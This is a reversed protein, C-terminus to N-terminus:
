RALTVLDYLARFHISPDDCIDSLVGHYQFSVLQQPEHTKRGLLRVNTSLRINVIIM